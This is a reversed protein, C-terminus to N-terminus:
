SVLDSEVVGMVEVAARQAELESGAKRIVMRGDKRLTIEQGKSNKLVVFLPTWMMVEYKALPKEKLRFLNLKLSTKPIAEISLHDSCLKFFLQGREKVAGTIKAVGAVSAVHLNILAIAAVIRDGPSVGPNVKLALTM